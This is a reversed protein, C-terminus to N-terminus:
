GAVQVFIPVKTVWAYISREPKSYKRVVITSYRRGSISFNSKHYLTQIVGAIHLAEKSTKEESFIEIYVDADDPGCGEVSPIFDVGVRINPYTFETSQYEAERIEEAGADLLSTVQTKSKLSAIWDSQVNEATVTM